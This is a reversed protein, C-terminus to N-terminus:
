KLGGKNNDVDRTSNKVAFRMSKEAVSLVDDGEEIKVIMYGAESLLDTMCEGCLGAEGDQILRRAEEETDAIVCAHSAPWRCYNCKWGEEMPIKFLKSIYM